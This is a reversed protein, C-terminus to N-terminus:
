LAPRGDSTYPRTNLALACSRKPSLQMSLSGGLGLGFLLVLSRHETDATGLGLARGLSRQISRAPKGAILVTAAIEGKKLKELADTQSM